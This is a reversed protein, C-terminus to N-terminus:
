AGSSRALSACYLSRDATRIGGEGDLAVSACEGKHKKPEYTDPILGGAVLLRKLVPLAKTHYMQVTEVPLDMAWAIKEWSQREVYRRTFVTRQEERDLQGILGKIEVRVRKMDQEADALKQHVEDRYATLEEDPDAVEDLLAVRSRIAEVRRRCDNVRNLYVMVDRFWDKLDPRYLHIVTVLHEQQFDHLTTM